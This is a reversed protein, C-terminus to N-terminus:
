RLDDFPVQVLTLEGGHVLMARGPPGSFLATRPLRVGLAEGDGVTSPCLLLGSRSKRVEPIFGRFQNLEGTTGAIVLASSRDRAARVFATLAEGVPADAILEADDVIVALGGGQAAAILAAFDAATATFGDVLGLVGPAGAFGTLPSPRSTVAVVRGGGALISHAMAILANSRGSRPPGMVVFGPGTACLDLQQPNLRDGGVGVMAVPASKSAGPGIATLLPELAVHFPLAAIPDPRREEPVAWDLETAARALRDITAVQAPGSPDDDLLGVQIETGGRAYFGRGPQIAEPLTRPNLGVISYVTRDNLRMMIIRDALSAFRPSTGSRDATVVVRVGAGHGERMLHMMATVLRGGDAAEFEANFGEWRDLLVVIYPMREEPLAMARQDAVTSFGGRALTQQRETTEATLKGILRDIREPERRTVVAGVHPFPELATLAGNGCDIGYIHVDAAGTRMALSAALSRLLTSRGSGPDGVVLLHGDRAVDYVAPRQAQQDPLDEMGIIATLSQGTGRRVAAGTLTLRSPLAPLWPSRPRTIEEVGAADGIAAVLAALDTTDDAVQRGEGGPLVEGLDEWGIVDV